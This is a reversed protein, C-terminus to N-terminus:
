VAPGLFSEVRTVLKAHNKLQCEWVILVRWGLRGLKRVAERDREVNRERKSRWFEANNKPETRGKL